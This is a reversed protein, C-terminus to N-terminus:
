SCTLLCETFTNNDENRQLYLKPKIHELIDSSQRMKSPEVKSQWLFIKEQQVDCIFMALRNCLADALVSRMLSGGACRPDLTKETLDRM